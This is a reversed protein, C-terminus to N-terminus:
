TYAFEELIKHVIFNQQGAHHIGRMRCEWIIQAILEGLTAGQNPLSDQISKYM